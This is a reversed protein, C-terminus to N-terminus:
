GETGLGSEEDRDKGMSVKWSMSGAGVIVLVNM